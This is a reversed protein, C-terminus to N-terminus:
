RDEKREQHRKETNHSLYRKLDVISQYHVAAMGAAQAGAINAPSDDIMLCAGTPAGLLQAAEKFVAPDPKANLLRDRTLIEDFSSRKKGPFFATLDNMTFTTLLAITYTQHLSQIYLLLEDDLGNRDNLVGNFDFILTTLKKDAM